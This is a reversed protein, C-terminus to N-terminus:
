SIAVALFCDTIELDLTLYDIFAKVPTQSDLWRVTTVTRYGGLIKTATYEYRSILYYSLSPVSSVSRLDRALPTKNPVGVSRDVGIERLAAVAWWM